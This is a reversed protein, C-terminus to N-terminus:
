LRYSEGQADKGGFIYLRGGASTFGHLMRVTPRSGSVAGSLDTWAGGVPDYVHLDNLFNGACAILTLQFRSRFRGL